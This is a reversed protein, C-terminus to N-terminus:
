IGEIAAWYRDEAVIKKLHERLAEGGVPHTRGQDRRLLDTLPLAPFYKLTFDTLGLERLWTAKKQLEVVDLHTDALILVECQKVADRVRQEWLWQVKSEWAPNWESWSFPQGTEAEQLAVRIMDRELILIRLGPHKAQMSIAWSSKGSAATGVTFIVLPLNEQDVPQSDASM